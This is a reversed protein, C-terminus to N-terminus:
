NLEATRFQQSYPKSRIIWEDITTCSGAPKQLTFLHLCTCKRLKQSTNIEEQLAWGPLVTEFLFLCSKCNEVIDM